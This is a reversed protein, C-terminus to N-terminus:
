RADGWSLVYHERMLLEVYRPSQFDGAAELDTIEKLNAQDMKPSAHRHGEVFWAVVARAEEFPAWSGELV